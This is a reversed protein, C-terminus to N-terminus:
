RYLDQEIAMALRTRGAAVIVIRDHPAVTPEHVGAQSPQLNPVRFDDAPIAEKSRVVLVTLCTTAYLRSM